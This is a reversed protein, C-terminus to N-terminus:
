AGRAPHDAGPAVTSVVARKRQHRRQGSTHKQESPKIDKYKNRDPSVASSKRGIPPIMCSIGSYGGAGMYRSM